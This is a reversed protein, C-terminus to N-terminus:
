DVKKHNNMNLEEKNLIEDMESKSANMQKHALNWKNMSELFSSATQGYQTLRYEVRPPVTGYDIREVLGDEVLKRLERSLIRSSINGDIERRLENFRMRKEQVLKWLIGNELDRGTTVFKNGDFLNCTIYLQKTKNPSVLFVPQCSSLRFLVIM